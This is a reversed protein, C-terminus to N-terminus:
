PKILERIQVHEVDLEDGFRALVFDDGIELPSFRDPFTVAGLWAGDATFVHWTRYEDGPAQYARVWLNGIRDVM